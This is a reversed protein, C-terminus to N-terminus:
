RRIPTIPPNAPYRRGPARSRARRQANGQSLGSLSEQPHQNVSEMPDRVGSPIPVWMRIGDGQSRSARHGRAHLMALM